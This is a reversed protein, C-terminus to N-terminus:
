GLFEVGAGVFEIGMSEEEPANNAFQMGVSINIGQNVQPNGPVEFRADLHDGQLNLDKYEAIGKEGDYLDVEYVTAHSRTRFSLMAAGVRTRAGDVLAPTPVQFHVWTRQGESGVIRGYPGLHRHNTLVEPRQVQMSSGHVWSTIKNDSM